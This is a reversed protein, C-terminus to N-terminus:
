SAGLKARAASVTIGDLALTKERSKGGRVVQVAGKALGGREAIFAELARNAAGAVPPATLTVRIRGDREVRVANRSSKPQVRVRLLVGDERAEIAAM